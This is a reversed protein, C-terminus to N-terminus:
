RGLYSLPNRYNRGSGVKVMFHVHPGTSRGTSGINGIRQGRSVYQGVYVPPQRIMHGYVTTLGNGHDIMVCYGLGDTRWGSWIVRGSDAAVITTGASIAIDLGNHRSSFYQTIRGQVPWVMRGTGVKPTNAEKKPAPQTEKKTPPKPAAAKKETKPPVPAEVRAAPKEGGAPEVRAAAVVEREPSGGPVMIMQDIQLVSDVTLHNPQYDLIMQPTVGLKDAITLINDGKEVKYEIGSVPLVKLQSGIQLNDPDPIENANLLTPVDVGFRAAVGRLTDGQKVAYTMAAERQPMMGGPVVLAKGPQVVGDAIANPGYAAIAAPDVQFRRAITELTDGQNPVYYMGDIPPVAITRGPQLAESSDFIGNSGMVTEPLVDFKAAVSEITDGEVVVYQVVEARAPAAPAQNEPAPAGAEPIRSNAAADAGGLETRPLALDYDHSDIETGPLGAEDEFHDTGTYADVSQLGQPYAGQVTLSNLGGLAVLVGVVLLVVIHTAYRTAWRSAARRSAHLEASDAVGLAGPLDDPKIILEARERASQVRQSALALGTQLRGRPVDRVEDEDYLAHTGPVISLSSEGESTDGSGIVLRGDPGITASLSNAPSKGATKGTPAPGAVRGRTQNRTAGSRSIVQPQSPDATPNLLSNLSHQADSIARQSRSGGNSPSGDFSGRGKGNKGAAKRGSFSEASGDKPGKGERPLTSSM